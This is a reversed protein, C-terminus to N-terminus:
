IALLSYSSPLVLSISAHNSQFPGFRQEIYQSGATGDREPPAMDFGGLGIDRRPGLESALKLLYM